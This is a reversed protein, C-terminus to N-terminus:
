ETKAPGITGRELLPTPIVYVRPPSADGKLRAILREAAKQGFQYTPQDVVSIRPTTVRSWDADFWSVLTMDQPLTLGRDSLERFVRACILSDSALIATITPSRKLIRTVVATTEDDGTAGVFVLDAPDEVGAERMQTLFGSIRERVASIGIEELRGLKGDRTKMATVYAVHRHGEEQLRRLVRGVSQRDEGCVADAGLQPAHRDLTVVPTGAALAAKLHDVHRADTPAVILGAVRQRLLVSVMEIEESLQESSNSIILNLGAARLTDSIGRVAQSFFANEIDGVIVGVLGSRGTSMSRALDNPQYGLREAAELVAKRAGESAIGYEGLVRAATAKSVKAERAVDAVTLSNKKGSM